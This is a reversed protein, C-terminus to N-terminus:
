KVLYMYDGDGILVIKLEVTKEHCATFIVLATVGLLLMFRQSTKQSVFCLM